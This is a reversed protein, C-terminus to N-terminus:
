RPFCYLLLLALALFCVAGVLAAAALRSSQPNHIASQPDRISIGVGWDSIRFRPSGAVVLLIGLAQSGVILAAVYPAGGFGTVYRVPSGAALRGLVLEGLSPEVWEGVFFRPLAGVVVCLLALAVMPAVMAVPTPRAANGSPVGRPAGLVTKQFVRVFLAVAMAIEFVPAILVAIAWEYPAELVGHFVMLKSAFGNLPPVGCVALAAVGAAAFPVPMTRALGALRGLDTTGARRGIAGVALFLASFALACNAAHFLAGLVGGTTGAGLGLVVYGMEGVALWAVLKWLDSQAMARAVGLIVLLAGVAMTIGRAGPTVAFLQLAVRALIGAGVLRDLWSSLAAMALAQPQEASESVGGRLPVVGMRVLVGALMLLFAWVGLGATQPLFRGAVEGRAIREIESVRSTGTAKWLLLVGLLLLAGGLVSRTLAAIAARPAAGGGLRAQLHFMLAAFQWALVVLILHDALAATLVGALAFHLLGHYRGPLPHPRLYALSYCVMLLFLLSTTLTVFGSLAGASLTLSLSGARTPLCVLRVALGKLGPIQCSLLFVVAAGALSLLAAERGLRRPLALCIGGVLLPFSVYHFLIAESM